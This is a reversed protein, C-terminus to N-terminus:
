FQKALPTFLSSLSPRYDSLTLSKILYKIFAPLEKALRSSSTVVHRHFYLAWALNAIEGYALLKIIQETYIYPHKSKKFHLLDKPLLTKNIMITEHHMPIGALINKTIEAHDTPFTTKGLKKNSEDIFFAQTGVGVVKPHSLLFNLQRKIRDKSSISASDSFAIYSGKAKKLARNICISLGYRKKNKSIVIRPDQKKCAKLIEYSNDKSYDDIAIIQLNPYSQSLLSNLSQELFAQANCVPFLISVLPQNQKM